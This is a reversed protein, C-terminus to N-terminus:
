CIRSLPPLHKSKVNKFQGLADQLEKTPFPCLQELRVFATNGIGKDKADGALAYYHKGTVFIVREVDDASSTSPGLSFQKSVFIIRTGECLEALLRPSYL